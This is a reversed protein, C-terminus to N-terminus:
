ASRRFVFLGLAASAAPLALLLVGYRLLGAFQRAELYTGLLAALLLLAGAGAAGIRDGSSPFAAQGVALSLYLWLSEAWLPASRLASWIGGPAELSFDSGLLLLSLAIFLPPVLLLPAVAVLAGRLPDSRAHVVSGLIWSGDPQRRPHFLEVRGTPVRLLLCALYHAMEHIATAPAALLYALAPSREYLMGFIRRQGFYLLAIEVGLAGALLANM